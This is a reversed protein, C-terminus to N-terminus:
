ARKAILVANSGGFAFSNSMVARPERLPRSVLPIYDLDCEPDPQWLHATPPAIAQNMAQLAVIFEVIGAAGLLHAHLAKTSSIPLKKAQEGFVRKISETEVKDGMMTATGHANLYAIDSPAVGRAAAETLAARMARAQGEADPRSLHIADNSLGYGAVEAIISAGRARAHEYAELVVAGAGEGLVLGTRDKAFPRCSTEPKIKDAVALAMMAEWSKMVGFTLVAEAGGAVALDLAGSGIARFAEGLAVASSACAVAYTLSAGKLGFDLGINAAAANPMAAIVAFPHVRPLNHLFADSYSKEMTGAGGFGTGFYVGARDADFNQLRSQDWAEHAATLAFQSFRDLQPLREKPYNPQFDRVQGGLRLKLREHLPIDVAAIGSVGGLLNGFFTDAGSGIPSVVGMGTVVVRKL